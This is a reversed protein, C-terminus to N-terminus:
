GTRLDPSERLGRKLVALAGVLHPPVEPEPDPRSVEDDIVSMAGGARLRPDDRRVRPGLRPDRRAHVHRAAKRGRPVPDPRGPPDDLAPIGRGRADDPARGPAWKLDRGRNHSGGGVNRRRPDP